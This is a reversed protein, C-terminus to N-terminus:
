HYDEIAKIAIIKVPAHGEIEVILRWQRNLRMSHQHSRKGRLKEFHLSKLRYFVREDPAARIMQVRKRYAKVVEPSLGATFRLDTELRDLSSDDFRLEM